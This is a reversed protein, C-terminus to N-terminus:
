YLKTIGLYPYGILELLGWPPWWGQVGLAVPTKKKGGPALPIPLELTRSQQTLQMLYSGSHKTSPNKLLLLMRQRINLSQGILAFTNLVVKRLSSSSIIGRDSCSTFKHTRQEVSWTHIISVISFVVISGHTTPGSLRPEWKPAMAYMFKLM